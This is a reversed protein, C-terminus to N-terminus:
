DREVMVYNYMECHSLVYLVSFLHIWITQISKKGTFILYSCKVRACNFGLTLKLSRGLVFHPKCTWGADGMICRRYLSTSPFHRSLLFFFFFFFAVDGPLGSSISGQVHLVTNISYRHLLTIWIRIIRYLQLFQCDKEKRVFVFCFVFSLFLIFDISLYIYKCLILFILHNM